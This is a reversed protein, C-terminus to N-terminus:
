REAESTIRLLADSLMKEVNYATSVALINNM